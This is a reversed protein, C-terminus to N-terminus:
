FQSAIYRENRLIQNYYKAILEVHTYKNEYMWNNIIEHIINDFNIDYDNYLDYMYTYTHFHTLKNIEKDINIALENEPTNDHNYVVEGYEANYEKYPYM